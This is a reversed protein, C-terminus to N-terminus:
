WCCCYSREKSSEDEDSCYFKIGFHLSGSLFCKKPTVRWENDDAFYRNTLGLRRYSLVYWCCCYSRELFICLGSSEDEDSCYLKIGFHLSGSLFCIRTHSMMIIMIWIGTPWDWDWGVTRCVYGLYRLFGVTRCFTDWTDAATLVPVSSVIFFSRRSM